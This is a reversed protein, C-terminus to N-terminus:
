SHPHLPPHVLSFVPMKLVLLFFLHFFAVKNKVFVFNQKKM